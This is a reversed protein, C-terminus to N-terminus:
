KRREQLTPRGDPFIWATGGILVGGGGEGGGGEGGEEGGRQSFLKM